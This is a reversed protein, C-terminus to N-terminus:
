QIKAAQLAYTTKDEDIMTSVLYLEKESKMTLRYSMNTDQLGGIRSVGYLQTFKKATFKAKFFGEGSIAYLYNDRIQMDYPGGLFRTPLYITHSSALRYEEIEAEGEGIKQKTGNAMKSVVASEYTNIGAVIDGEATMPFFECAAQRTATMNVTDFYVVGHHTEEGQVGLIVTNNNDQGLYKMSFHKDFSSVRIQDNLKVEKEITGQHNVKYIYYVTQEVMDGDKDAVFYFNGQADQWQATIKQLAKTKTITNNDLAVPTEVLSAGNLTKKLCYSHDVAWEYICYNGSSDIMGGDNLQALNGKINSVGFPVYYEEGEVITKKNRDIKLNKVMHGKVNVDLLKKCKNMKLSTLQNYQLYVYKLKKNCNLDLKQLKGDVMEVYTLNKNKKFNVTKVSTNDAIFKQMNTLKEIGKFSKIDKIYKKVYKGYKSTKIKVSNKNSYTGFRKAKKIESASLKKDKNKDYNSKVLERFVQDPFNKKNIAIKKSAAQSEQGTVGGTIGAAMMFATTVMIIQKRM